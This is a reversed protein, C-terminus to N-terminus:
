ELGLVLTISPVRALESPREERLACSRAGASEGGRPEGLKRRKVSAQGNKRDGRIRSTRIGVGFDRTLLTSTRLPRDVAQFFVRLNPTWALLRYTIKRGQRIIQAPLRIFREQFTRFEMRVVREKKTRHREPPGRDCLGLSRGRGRLWAGAKPQLSDRGHMPLTLSPPRALMMIAGM